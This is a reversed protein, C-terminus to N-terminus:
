GACEREGMVGHGRVGIRMPASLHGADHSLTRGTTRVVQEREGLSQRWVVSRRQSDVATAVIEQDLIVTLEVSMEIFVSILVLVGLVRARVGPGVPIQM